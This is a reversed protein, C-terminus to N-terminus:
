GSPTVSTRTSLRGLSQVTMGWCPHAPLTPPALWSDWLNWLRRWGSMGPQGEQCGAWVARTASLRAERLSQPLHLQEPSLMQIKNQRQATHAPGEGYMGTSGVGGRLAWAHCPSCACRPAPTSAHAPAAPAAERAGANGPAPFGLNAVKSPSICPRGMKCKKLLRLQLIKPLSCAADPTKGRNTDLAATHTRTHVHTRVHSCRCMDMCICVSGEVMHPLCWRPGGDWKGSKADMNKDGGAGECRPSTDTSWAKFYIPVCAQTTKRPSKQFSGLSLHSALLPSEPPAWPRSSLSSPDLPPCSPLM